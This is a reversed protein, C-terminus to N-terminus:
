DVLRREGSELALLRAKIAVGGGYGTLRGDAGIVRHCPIVIPLPNSGNAAGVARTARPLGIRLALEAYSITEGYPIEMLGHWVRQQFPTGAPALSLEFRRRQGAFYERLQDTADQFAEPRECWGPGPLCPKREHPFRIIRLPSGDRALLLRGV